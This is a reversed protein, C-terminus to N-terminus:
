VRQEKHPNFPMQGDVKFWERAEHREVSEIMSLMNAWFMQENVPAVFRKRTGVIIQRGPNFADEAEYRIAMTMEGPNTSFYTTPEFKWGPKYTFRKLLERVEYETMM